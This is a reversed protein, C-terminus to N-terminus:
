KKAPKLNYVYIDELKKTYSLNPFPFSVAIIRTNKKVEKLLKKELKAMMYGIGYIIIVDFKGLNIKWFDCWRVKIKKDL